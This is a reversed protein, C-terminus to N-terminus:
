ACRKPLYASIACIERDRYSDPDSIWYPKVSSFFPLTLKQHKVYGEYGGKRHFNKVAFVSVMLAMLRIM